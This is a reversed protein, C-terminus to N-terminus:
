PINDIYATIADPSRIGVTARPDCFISYESGRYQARPSLYYVLPTYQKSYTVLNDRKIHLVNNAIIKWVSSKFTLIRVEFTVDPSPWNDIFYSSPRDNVLEYLPPLTFIM